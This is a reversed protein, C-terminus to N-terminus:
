VRYSVCSINVTMAWSRQLIPPFVFLGLPLVPLTLTNSAAALLLPLHDRALSVLLSSQAPPDQVRLLVSLGM